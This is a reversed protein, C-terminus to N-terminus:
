VKSEARDKKAEGKATGEISLSAVLIAEPPWGPM